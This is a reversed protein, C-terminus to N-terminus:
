SRRVHRSRRRAAARRTALYWRWEAMLAEYRMEEEPTLDVFVRRERYAAIHKQASLEEADREYVVPGILQRWTTTAGTPASWRPASASGGPRPASRAVIARYSHAPLHHAEDFVLLGYGDLKRRPMAASDYTIVTIPGVTREGGGVIGVAGRGRGAADRLRQAM